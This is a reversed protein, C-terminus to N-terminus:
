NLGQISPAPVPNTPSHFLFPSSHFGLLWKVNQLLVSTQLGPEQPMSICTGLSTSPHAPSRGSWNLIEHLVSM